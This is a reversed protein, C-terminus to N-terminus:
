PTPAILPAGCGPCKPSDTNVQKIDVLARCYECTIRGEHLRAILALRAGKEVSSVVRLAFAQQVFTYVRPSDPLANWYITRAFRHGGLLRTPANPPTADFKVGGSAGPVLTLNQVQDYTADLFNTRRLGSLRIVRRDTLAYITQRWLVIYLAILVVPPADLVFIAALLVGAGGSIIGPAGITAGIFLLAWIFLITLRGWYMGLLSPRTEFFVREDGTLLSRPYLGPQNTPPLSLLLDTETRPGDAGYAMGGICAGVWGYTHRLSWLCSGVGEV